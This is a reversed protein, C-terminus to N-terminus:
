GKGRKTKETKVGLNGAPNGIALKASGYPENGAACERPQGPSATNPYPNVHLPGSSAGAPGPYVKQAPVSEHGPLDDIAIQVFRLLGGQPVTESLTSQINRLFLTVYNCTSQVPTLFALPSRLSSATLTLRDLGGQVAPTQGYSDLRRSLAVTRRDLAATGPLTRTGIAFTSALVPSSQPLTAVGPRLDAFLAATDRLFPRIVPSGSITANFFPPTESITNQLSPVAVRALATFTTDLSSFLSAQTGAVSSLAGSYANLGRFFGGLGTQPSSLNRAVPGLDNLLPLFAGLANNIDPGRGALAEGFGITSKQVGVRTPPTFMSLVQDFDVQTHSQSIPLTANDAYYRSSHGPTIQLYKLGISGKLRVTFSTDVPLPKISEHLKLNITAVPQGAKTRSATVSNVLGVLSGGMYVDDGHTLESADVIPVHLTYSPVFPLGATANYALAVAVITVLVTLAGILIPNGALSSEQRRRPNM